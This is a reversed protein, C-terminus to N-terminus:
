APVAVSSTDGVVLRSAVLTARSLNCTASRLRRHDPRHAQRAPRVRAIQFVCQAEIGNARLRTSTRFGDFGPLAVKLIVPDPNVERARELALKSAAFPIRVGPM